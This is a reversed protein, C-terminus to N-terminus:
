SGLSVDFHWGKATLDSAQYTHSDRQSVSVVYFSADPLNTIEFPFSCELAASDYTPSFLEGSGIITGSENKVTVQTGVRIDSYSGSLVCANYPDENVVLLTGTLTHTGAKPMWPVDTVTPIPTATATSSGCQPTARCQPRQLSSAWGQDISGPPHTKRTVVNPAVGPPAM